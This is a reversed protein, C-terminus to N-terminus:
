DMDDDDDDVAKVLSGVEPMQSDTCCHILGVGARVHYSIAGWM